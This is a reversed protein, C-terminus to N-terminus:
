QFEREFVIVPNFKDFTLEDLSSLLKNKLWVNRTKAWTKDQTLWFRTKNNNNNNQEKFYM